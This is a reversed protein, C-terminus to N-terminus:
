LLLCVSSPGVLYLIFIWLYKSFAQQLIAANNLIAGVMLLYVKHFIFLIGMVKGSNHLKLEM